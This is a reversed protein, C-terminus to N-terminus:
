VPMSSVMAVWATMFVPGGAATGDEPPRSGPRQAMWSLERTVLQLLRLAPKAEHASQGRCLFM